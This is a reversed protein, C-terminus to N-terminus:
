IWVRFEIIEPGWLYPINSLTSIIIELEEFRILVTGDEEFDFASLLGYMSLDYADQPNYSINTSNYSCNNSGNYDSPIKIDMFSSDVFEINWDCGDEINVVDTRSTSSNIMVTYIVTNNASCNTSNSSSDGTRISINNDGSILLDVPINIIFSDGLTAYNTSFDSLNFVVDDNVVLLDTWHEDSYSTVKADVVRMGEYIKLTKNCSVFESSELDIAIENPNITELQGVYGYKLFTHPYINSPLHDGHFNLIQSSFNSLRLIENTINRYVEELQSANTADFYLSDNCATQKLTDTGDTSIGDGFGITFVTVNNISNNCAYQGASITSAPANSTDYEGDYIGPGSCKHTADGDSLVVLYDPITDASVMDFAKYIGCCVCTWGDGEYGNIELELTPRDKTLDVASSVSGDYSVLGVDATTANLLTDVSLLDAEQAIEMRSRSCDFESEHYRSRPICSGGCVNGTCDAADAVVCSQWGSRRCNYTCILNDSYEGCYDMSGSIDTVLVVDVDQGSNQIIVGDLGALGLRVPVTIESLGAYNLVTQLFSNNVQISVNDTQNSEFVTVNGISFYVSANFLSQNLFYNLNISLNNLLGPVYFSDYLNIVGNVEPFEKKNEVAIPVFYDSEYNVRLFGGAVYSENLLGLFYISVNNKESVFDNSCSTLNWADPAMNTNSSNLQGNCPIGNIYLVFDSPTSLELYVSKVDSSLLDIPLELHTTINGQGIFGGFYSYSSRELSQIKRIYASSSSGQLTEADKKIGSILRRYSYVTSQSSINSAYLESGDLYVGFGFNAPLMGQLVLSTLNNAEITNGLSWFKGIQYLISVSPDDIMGNAILSDIWPDGMEEVTLEDLVRVIDRSYYDAVPSDDTSIQFTLMLIVATVILISAFLADITFYFGKKSNLSVM